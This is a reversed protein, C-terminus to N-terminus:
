SLENLLVVIEVVCHISVLRISSSDFAVIFAYLHVFVAKYPAPHTHNANFSLPPHRLRHSEFGRSGKPGVGKAPSRRRGSPWMETAGNLSTMGAGCASFQATVLDTQRRAPARATLNAHRNTDRCIRAFTKRM